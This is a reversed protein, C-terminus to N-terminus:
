ATKVARRRRALLAMSGFGLLSLSTPEPVGFTVNTAFVSQSGTNGDLGGDVWGIELEAQTAGAPALGTVSYPAWPTAGNSGNVENVTGALIQTLFPSGVSGGSANLYQVALYTDCNMSNSSNKDGAQNALTINDYGPEQFALDSTFTYTSGPTVGTVTQTASGSAVFTQLWFSWTGGSPTPTDFQCRAGPNTYDDGVAPSLTWGTAVGDTGTAGDAPLEFNPNVVTQALAPAVSLCLGAIGGACASKLVIRRGAPRGGSLAAKYHSSRRM